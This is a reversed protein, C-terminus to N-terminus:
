RRKKKRPPQRAVPEPVLLRANLLGRPDDAAGPRTGALMSRAQAAVRADVHRALLLLEWAPAGLASAQEASAAAANYSAGASHPGRAEDDELLCELIPDRKMINRAAAVFAAGNYRHLALM